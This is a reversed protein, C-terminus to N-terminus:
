MRVQNPGWLDTCEQVGHGASDDDCVMYNKPYLFWSAVLYVVVTPLLSVLQMSWSGTNGHKQLRVQFFLLLNCDFRHDAFVAGREGKETTEGFLSVGHTSARYRNYVNALIVVCFSGFFTHVAIEVSTPLASSHRTDLMLFLVLYNVVASGLLTIMKRSWTFSGEANNMGAFSLPDQVTVGQSLESESKNIVSEQTSKSRACYSWYLLLLVGWPFAVLVMLALWTPTVLLTCGIRIAYKARKALAGSKGDKNVREERCTIPCECDPEKQLLPRDLRSLGLDLCVDDSTTPPRRQMDLLLPTIVERNLSPPISVESLNLV